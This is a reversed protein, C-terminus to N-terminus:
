KRMRCPFATAGRELDAFPEKEAVNGRDCRSETIELIISSRTDVQHPNKSVASESKLAEAHDPFLHSVSASTEGQNQPQLRHPPHRRHFTHPAATPDHVAGGGHISSMDSRVRSARGTMRSTTQSNSSNYGHCGYGCDTNRKSCLPLWSQGKLRCLLATLASPPPPTYTRAHCICRGTNQLM